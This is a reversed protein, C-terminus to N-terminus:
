ASRSRRRTWALTACSGGLGLLTLGLTAALSTLRRRRLRPACEEYQPGYVDVREEVQRAVELLWAKKKHSGRLFARPGEHFALYLRYPDDKAIGTQRHIQEGYWGVFDVAADFDDRRANERGREKRYQNWTAEVAQAYGYASSSRPGPLLWLIRRRPPRAGARFGSEQYIIALQVPEPVGWTEYALRASRYWHSKEGFIACIDEPDSPPREARRWVAIALSLLLLLLAAGVLWRRYRSARM